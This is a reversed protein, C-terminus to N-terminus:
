LKTSELAMLDIPVRIWNFGNYQDLNQSLNIFFIWRTLFDSEYNQTVFNKDNKKIKQKVPTQLTWLLIVFKTVSHKLNSYKTVTTKHVYLRLIRSTFSNLNVCINPSKPVTFIKQNQHVSQNKQYWQFYKRIYSYNVLKEAPSM